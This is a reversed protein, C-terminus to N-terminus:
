HLILFIKYQCVVQPNIFFVECDYLVGYAENVVEETAVKKIQYPPHRQISYTCKDIAGVHNM